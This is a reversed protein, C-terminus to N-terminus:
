GCVLSCLLPYLRAIDNKTNCKHSCREESQVSGGSNTPFRCRLLLHLNADRSKCCFSKTVDEQEQRLGNRATRYEVLEMYYSEYMIRVNGTVM